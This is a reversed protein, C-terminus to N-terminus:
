QLVWAEKYHQESPERKELQTTETEARPYKELM